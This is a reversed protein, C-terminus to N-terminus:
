PATDVCTGVDQREQITVPQNDLTRLRPLMMLCTHKYAPHHCVPNGDLHLAHLTAALPRLARLERVDTILNQALSLQQLHPFQSVGGMSTIYNQAALLRECHRQYVVPVDDLERISLAPLHLVFLPSWRFM